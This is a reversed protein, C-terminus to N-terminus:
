DQVELVVVRGTLEPNLVDEVVFEGVSLPFFVMVDMQGRQAYGHVENPLPSIGSMSPGKFPIVTPTLHHMEHDMDSDEASIGLSELEEPTMTEIEYASIDPEVLWGLDFPVLGAVRFHHEHEGRNRLVLKVHRGAPLLITSPEFGTDTMTVNVVVSQSNLDPTVLTQGADTGAGTNEGSAESGATCATLTLALILFVLWVRRSILPTVRMDVLKDRTMPLSIAACVRLDVTVLYRM